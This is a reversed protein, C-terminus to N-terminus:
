PKPNLYPSCCIAAMKDDSPMLGRRSNLQERSAYLYYLSTNEGNM